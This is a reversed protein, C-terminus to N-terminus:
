PLHSADRLQTLHPLISLKQDSPPVAVILSLQRTVSRACPAVEPSGATSRLLLGWIQLLSPTLDCGRSLLEPSKKWSEPFKCFLISCVNQKIKYFYLDNFLSLQCALNTNKLMRNSKNWTDMLSIYIYRMFRSLWQIGQQLVWHALAERIGTAIFVSIKICQSTFNM